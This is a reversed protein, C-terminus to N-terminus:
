ASSKRLGTVASQAAGVSAGAIESESRDAIVLRLKSSV